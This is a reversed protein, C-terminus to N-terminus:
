EGAFDDPELGNWGERFRGALPKRSESIWINANFDAVARLTKRFGRRKVCNENRSSRRRNRLREHVLKGLAPPRPRPGSPGITADHNMTM